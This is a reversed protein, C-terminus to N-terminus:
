GGLSTKTTENPRPVQNPRVRHLVVLKDPIQNVLTVTGEFALSNSLFQGDRYVICTVCIDM